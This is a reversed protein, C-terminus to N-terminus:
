LVGKKKLKNRYKIVAKRAALKIMKETEAARAATEAKDRENREARRVESYVAEAHHREATKLWELERMHPAMMAAVLALCEGACLHTVYKTGATVTWGDGTLSVHFDNFRERTGTNWNFDPPISFANGSIMDSM